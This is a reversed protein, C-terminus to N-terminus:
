SLSFKLTTNCSAYIQFYRQAFVIGGENMVYLLPPIQSTDVLTVRDPRHKPLTHVLWYESRQM